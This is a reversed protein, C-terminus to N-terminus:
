RLSGKTRRRILGVAGLGASILLLSGPEPVQGGGLPGNFSIDLSNFLSVNGGAALCDLHFDGNFNYSGNSSFSGGAIGSLSGSFPFSFSQTGIGGASCVHSSDDICIRAFGSATGNGVLNVNVTTAGATTSAGQAEFSVDVPSCTSSLTCTLSLNTLRLLSDATTSIAGTSCGSNACFEGNFTYGGDIPTSTVQVDTSTGLQFVPSVFLFQNYTVPAAYAGCAFAILCAAVPLQSLRM